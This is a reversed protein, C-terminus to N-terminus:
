GEKEIKNLNFRLLPGYEIKGPCVYSCLALDEEDLELCGLAQAEDTDGTMLSRLLFTPILDLPMVREYLGIPVMPRKSGQNSTTFSYKKTPDIFKSFFVNSVSFKNLGPSVWGLFTRKRGEMLSSVQLHYRGLYATPGDALRGSLVSGSVNRVEGSLLRNQIIEEIHAGLPVQILGPSEVAPGAFSIVRNM